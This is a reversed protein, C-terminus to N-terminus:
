ATQIEIEILDTDSHRIAQIKIPLMSPKGKTWTVKGDVSVFAKSYFVQLNLANDVTSQGRALVAFSSVQDGRFLSFSKASGTDTVLADNMVKAYTDPSLDVLNLTMENVEGTRFRKSPTTSGAPTFDVTTESHDVDVGSEDYNRAGEVGLIEWAPDFGTPDDSVAPPATGIVALYITLPAAVIEHPAPM